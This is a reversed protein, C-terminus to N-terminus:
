AESTSRSQTLDRAASGRLHILADFAARRVRSDPDRIFSKIREPAGPAGSTRLLWMASVRFGPKGSTTLRKLGLLWDPDGLLYLGYSANATVRPDPDHLANRLVERVEPEKRKWLAEVLNARIRADTEGMVSYLWDMNNSHRGLVLVCKSAIQPDRSRLFPRLLGILRKEEVIGSGFIGGLVEIGRFVTDLPVIKSLCLGQLHRVIKMEFGRASVANNKALRIAETLSYRAPDCLRTVSVVM